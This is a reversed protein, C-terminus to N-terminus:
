HVDGGLDAGAICAQVLLTCELAQQDTLDTLHSNKYLSGDRQFYIIHGRSTGPM